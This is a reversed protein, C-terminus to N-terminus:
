PRPVEHARVISVSERRGPKDEVLLAAARRQDRERRAGRDLNLM